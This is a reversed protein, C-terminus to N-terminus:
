SRDLLLIMSDLDDLRLKPPFFDAHMLVYSRREYLKSFNSDFRIELKQLFRLFFLLGGEHLILDFYFFM